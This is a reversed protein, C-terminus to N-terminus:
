RRERRGALLSPFARVVATAVVAAAASKLVDGPLFVLDAAVAEGFSLNGRWMMGLIGLPHITLLSTGFCAFFTWVARTKRDASAPIRAVLAGIIMAAITFAAVYGTSQTLFIGPGSRGMSFVPVGAVGVAVYLLVALGGRKWGLVAGTLMVAFTQLTIPVAGGAVPIAPIIACVAVLASFTAVLAVDTAASSRDLDRRVLTDKGDDHTLREAM